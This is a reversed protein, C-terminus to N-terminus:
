GFDFGMGALAVTLDVRFREAVQGGLDTRRLIICFGHTFVFPIRPIPLLGALPRYKGTLDGYYKNGFQASQPRKPTDVKLQNKDARM